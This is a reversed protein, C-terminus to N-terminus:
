KEAVKEIERHKKTLYDRRMQEVTNGATLCVRRM